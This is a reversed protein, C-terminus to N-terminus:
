FTIAPSAVSIIGNADATGPTTLPSSGTRKVVLSVSQGATGGTGTLAIAAGNVTSAYTIDKIWPLTTITENTTGGSATTYVVTQSGTYNGSIEYRVVRSTNNNNNDDKDKECSLFTVSAILVLLIYVNIKKMIKNTTKLQIISLPHAM